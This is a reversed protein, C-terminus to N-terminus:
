DKRGLIGEVDSCDKRLAEFVKEWTRKMLKEDTVLGGFLFWFGGHGEETLVSGSVLSRAGEEATRGLFAMMPAMFVHSLAGFKRGLDTKCFGPCVVDVIIGHGAGKVIGKFVAMGVVKVGLYSKEADWKKKMGDQLYRLLSTETGLWKKEFKDHGNSNVFTMHPKKGTLYFTRRLLPLLLVAMLAASLVNVQVAQEWGTPAEEYTPNGLGANLLAIDLTQTETELQSIFSIVSSFTDLNVPIISITDADASRSPVLSLLRSKTLQGKELTRVALILKSSGLSFYKLAAQFGLGTNAGTVLITKNSFSITPDTPPHKATWRLCSLQSLNPPPGGTTTPTILNPDSMTLPKLNHLLLKSPSDRLSHPSQKYLDNSASNWQNSSPIGVNKRFGAM